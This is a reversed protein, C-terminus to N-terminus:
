SRSAAASDIVGAASARGPRPGHPAVLLQQRDTIRGVRDREAFAARRQQRRGAQALRNPRFRNSTLSSPRFGVPLKLARPRAIATERAFSSPAVLARSETPRCRPPPWPRRRRRPGPKAGHDRHRLSVGAAIIHASHPRRRRALHDEDVAQDVVAALQDPFPAAARPSTRHRSGQALRVPGFALLRHPQLDGLLKAPASGSAIM